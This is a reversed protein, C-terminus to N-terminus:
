RKLPRGESRGHLLYHLIAPIGSSLVDPNAELYAETDFKASIEGGVVPLRGNQTTSARLIGQDAGLCCLTRYFGDFNIVQLGNFRDVYEDESLFFNRILHDGHGKYDRLKEIDDVDVRSKLKEKSQRLMSQHPRNHFHLYTMMSSREVLGSVVGGNHFGMELHVVPGRRFFVKHHTNCYYQNLLGPINYMMKNIKIVAAPGIAVKELSKSIDERSSSLGNNGCAALYEDCDMPFIVDYNTGAFIENIKLRLIEGKNEFDQPEKHEEDIWAGAQRFKHLTETVSAMTSGNDFVYLNEIGFLYSHYALWPELFDDENKQMMVCAIRAM